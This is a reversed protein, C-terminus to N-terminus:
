LRIQQFGSGYAVSRYRPYGVGRGRGPVIPSVAMGRVLAAAVPSLITGRGGLEVLASVLPLQAVFGLRTRPEDHVDARSPDIRFCSKTGDGTRGRLRLRLISRMVSGISAPPPTRASCLLEQLRDSPHEFARELPDLHDLLW